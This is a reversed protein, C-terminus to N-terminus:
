NIKSTCPIFYWYQDSHIRISPGIRSLSTARRAADNRRHDRFHPKPSRVTTWRVSTSSADLLPPFVRQLIFSVSLITAAFWIIIITIVFVAIKRPNEDEVDIPTQVVLLFPVAVSYETSFKRRSAVFSALRSPSYNFDRACGLHAKEDCAALSATCSRENEREKRERVNELSLFLSCPRRPIRIVENTENALRSRENIRVLPCFRSNISASFLSLSLSFFLVLFSLIPRTSSLRTKNRGIFFVDIHNWLKRLISARRRTRPYERSYKVIGGILFSTEVSRRDSNTRDSNCRYEAIRLFLYINIEM